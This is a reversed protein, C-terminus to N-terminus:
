EEIIMWGNVKEEKSLDLQRYEMETNPNMDVGCKSLFDNSRMEAEFETPFIEIRNKLGDAKMTIKYERPINIWEVDTQDEFKVKFINDENNSWGERANNSQDYAQGLISEKTVGLKDFKEQNLVEMDVIVMKKM